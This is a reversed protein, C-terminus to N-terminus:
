TRQGWSEIQPIKKLVDESLILHISLYHINMTIIILFSFLSLCGLYSVHEIFEPMFM